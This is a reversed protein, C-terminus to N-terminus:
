SDHGTLIQLSLLAVIQEAADFGPHQGAVAEIADALCEGALLSELFSCSEPSIIRLAVDAETRSVLICEPEGIRVATMPAGGRHALWISAAAFPSRMLGASPHFRFRLGAWQEESLEALSGPMMADAEAAHYARWWLNELAAVDALYPVGAAPAFGGIFGPFSAGYEILVASRPRNADAFERAMAFFFEDGVLQATVPFRVKLASVLASSVNNRYIRLRPHGLASTWDTLASHLDQEKM